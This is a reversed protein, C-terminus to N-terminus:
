VRRHVHLCDQTTNILLLEEDQGEGEPQAAREGQGREPPAFPNVLAGQRARRQAEEHAQRELAFRSFAAANVLDEPCGEASFHLAYSRVLGEDHPQLPGIGRALHRGSESVEKWEEATKPGSWRPNGVAGIPVPVPYPGPQLPFSWLPGAHAGHPAARGAAQSLGGQWAGTDLGSCPYM